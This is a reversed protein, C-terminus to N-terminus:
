QSVHRFAEQLVESAMEIQIIWSDISHLYQGVIGAGARIEGRTEALQIVLQRITPTLTNLALHDADLSTMLTQDYQNLVRDIHELPRVM